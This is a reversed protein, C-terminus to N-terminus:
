DICVQIGNEDAILLRPFVRARKQLAIVNDHFCIGWTDKNTEGMPITGNIETCKALMYEILTPTTGNNFQPFNSSQTDEILYVGGETIFPFVSEFSNIQQHMWHGGDDLVVDVKGGMEEVVSRMFNRDAQDGIFIHVNDFEKEFVQCRADVDIGVITCEGGFYHNWMEISGGGRVGIELIVPKHVGKRTRLHACHHEYVDPYAESKITTFRKEGSEFWKRLM